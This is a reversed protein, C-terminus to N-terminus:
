ENEVVYILLGFADSMQEIKMIRGFKRRVKGLWEEFDEVMSKDLVVSHFYYEVWMAYMRYDFLPDNSDFLYIKVEKNKM